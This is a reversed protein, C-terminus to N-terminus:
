QVPTYAIRFLQESATVEDSCAVYADFGELSRVKVLSAALWMQTAIVPAANAPWHM